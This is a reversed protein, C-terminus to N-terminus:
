SHDRRKLLVSAIPDALWTYLVFILYVTTIATGLTQYEPHDATWEVIWLNLLWLGVILGLAVTSPLQSMFLTLRLFPRYWLSQSKLSQQHWFPDQDPDQRLSERFAQQADQFQGRRMMSQGLLEQAAPSEPDLRLAERIIAEAEDNRQQHKLSHALLVLLNEEDADLALGTRCARECDAWQERLAHIHALCHYAYVDLPELQLAVGIEEHAEDFRREAALSLSLIRHNRSDEPDLRCAEFAEILAKESYGNELLIVAMLAHAPASEVDAAIAQRCSRFAEPWREWEALQEARQLNRVSDENM